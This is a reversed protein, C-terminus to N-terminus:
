GNSHYVRSNHGSDLFFERYRSLQLAPCTSAKTNRIRGGTLSEAPGCSQWIRVTRWTQKTWFLAPSNKASPFGAASYEVAHPHPRRSYRSHNNQQGNARKMESDSRNLITAFFMKAERVCFDKREVCHLKKKSSKSAVLGGARGRETELFGRYSAGSACLFHNAKEQAAYPGDRCEIM